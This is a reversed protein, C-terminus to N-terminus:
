VCYVILIGQSNLLLTERSVIGGNTDSKACFQVETFRSNLSSNMDTFHSGSNM